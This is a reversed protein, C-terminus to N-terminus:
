SLYKDLVQKLLELIVSEMESSFRCWHMLIKVLLFSLNTKPLIHAHWFTSLVCLPIVKGAALSSFLKSWVNIKYMCTHPKRGWVHCQHHLNLKYNVTFGINQPILAWKNKNFCLM